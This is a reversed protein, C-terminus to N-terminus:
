SKIGTNSMWPPNVQARAVIHYEFRNRTTEILEATDNSADGIEIVTNAARISEDSFDVPVVIHEEPLEPM